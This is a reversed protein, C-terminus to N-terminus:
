IQRFLCVHGATGPPGAENPCRHLGTTQSYTHIQASGTEGESFTRVWGGRKLFAGKGPLFKFTDQYPFARRPFHLEKGQERGETQVHHSLSPAFGLCISPAPAPLQNVGSSSRVSIVLCVWAADWATPEPGRKGIGELIRHDPPKGAVIIFSYTPAPSETDEAANTIM